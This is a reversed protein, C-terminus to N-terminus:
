KQINKLWLYYQLSNISDTEKKKRNSFTPISTKRMKNLEVVLHIFFILYKSNMLKSLQLLLHSM